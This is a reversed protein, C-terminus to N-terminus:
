LCAHAAALVSVAAQLSALTRRAAALAPADPSDADSIQEELDAADKGLSDWVEEIRAQAASANMDPEDAWAAVISGVAEAIRARPAGATALRGLQELADETPSPETREM